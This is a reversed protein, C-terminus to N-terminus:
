KKRKRKKKKKQLLFLNFFSTSVGFIIIEVLLHREFNGNAPCFACWKITQYFPQWFGLWLESSWLKEGLLWWSSGLFDFICVEQPLFQFWEVSNTSKVELLYHFIVCFKSLKEIKWWNLIPQWTFILFKYYKRM